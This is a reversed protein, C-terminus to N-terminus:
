YQKTSIVEERVFDELESFCKDRQAKEKSVEKKPRSINEFCSRHFKFDKPVVVSPELNGLQIKGYTDNGLRDNAYSHQVCSWSRTTM